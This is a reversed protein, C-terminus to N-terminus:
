LVSQVRNSESRIFQATIETDYDTDSLGTSTTQTEWTVAEWQALAECLSLSSLSLSFNNIKQNINRRSVQM